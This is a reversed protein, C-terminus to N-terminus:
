VMTSCMNCPCSVDNLESSHHQKDLRGADVLTENCARVLYDSSLLFCYIDSSCLNYYDEM